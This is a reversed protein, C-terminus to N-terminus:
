WPGLTQKPRQDADGHFTWRKEKMQDVRSLDGTNLLWNLWISSAQASAWAITSVSMM